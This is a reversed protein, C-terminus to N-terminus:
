SVSVHWGIKKLMIQHFSIRGLFILSRISSGLIQSQDDERFLLCGQKLSPQKTLCKFSHLTKRKCKQWILRSTFCRAELHKIVISRFFCLNQLISWFFSELCRHSHKTRPTFAQWIAAAGKCYCEAREESCQQLNICDIISFGIWRSPFPVKSTVWVTQASFWYKFPIGYSQASAVCLLLRVICKFILLSIHLYWFAVIVRSQISYRSSRYLYYRHKQTFNPWEDRGPTDPSHPPPTTLSPEFFM